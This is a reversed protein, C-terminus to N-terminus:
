AKSSIHTFFREACCQPLCAEGTNGRSAERCGRLGRCGKCGKHGKCWMLRRCGRGGAGRMGGMPGMDSVALPVSYGAFAVDRQWTGGVYALDGTITLQMSWLAYTHSHMRPPESLFM